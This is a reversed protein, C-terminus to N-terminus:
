GTPSCYLGGVSAGTHTLLGKLEPSHIKVM